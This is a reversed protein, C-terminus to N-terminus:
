VTMARLVVFLVQTDVALLATFIAGALAGVGGVIEIVVAVVQAVGVAVILTVPGAAPKSYLM